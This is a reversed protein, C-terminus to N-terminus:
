ASSPMRSLLGDRPSPSTYLLCTYVVILSSWLTSVGEWFYRRSDYSIFIYSFRAMMVKLKQKDTSPLGRIVEINDKHKVLGQGELRLYLVLLVPLLIGVFITLIVFLLTAQDGIALSPYGFLLKFNLHDESQCSFDNAVVLVSLKREEDGIEKCNMVDLASKLIAPQLSFFFVIACNITHNIASRIVRALKLLGCIIFSLLTLAFFSFLPRDRICM